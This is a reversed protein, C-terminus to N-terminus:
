IAFWNFPKVDGASRSSNGCRFDRSGVNHDRDNKTAVTPDTLAAATRRYMSVWYSRGHRFSGRRHPPRELEQQTRGCPLHLRERRHEGVVARKVVRRQLFAPISVRVDRLRSDTVPILGGLEFLDPREVRFM